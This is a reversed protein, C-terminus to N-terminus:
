KSRGVLLLGGLGFVALAMTSPEPVILSFSKFNLAMSAAPASPTHPDNDVDGGLVPSTFVSSFGHRSSGDYGFGTTTDWVLVILRVTGGAVGGPVPQQGLTFRGTRFDPTMLGGILPGLSAPDPGGAPDPGNSVHVEVRYRDGKLITTGDVDYIPIISEGNNNQVLMTGVGAFADTQSFALVALGLSLIRRM